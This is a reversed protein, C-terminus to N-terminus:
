AEENVIVEDKRELLVVNEVHATHPFMDVPQVSLLEYNEGMMELDRAQTAPKCSVYIIYKPLLKLIQKVVKPDMGQRPPDAIILDPQGEKQVLEDNLIEKMDGAYFSFQDKDLGNLKVNEWADDVASQVYEIGVVKEAYDSIFIGISGTGSYLDYVTGLKNYGEPLCRKLYKEVVGYLESAQKPNTQFFSLPRVRFDYKGLSETLYEEGKWFRVEQDSYVSNLKQNVVWVFHTIQPYKKELHFFIDEVKEPDDQAVVLIIMLESRSLSNRFGLTRLFGTHERINYFAYEKEISYREIENRVENIIPLTLHCEDIPLVKDFFGPAHFGLAGEPPFPKGSDLEEKTFWVSRSFSFEVKNRYNFIENSGLIPLYEQSEIKGIRKLAALVQAEKYKIQAPYAMHQWKCGGCAKFHECQPDVRDESPRILNEMSGVLFKKQKAYVKAEVLDGPVGGEVFVVKDDHRGVARGDSAADHLELEVQFPKKIKRIRAM